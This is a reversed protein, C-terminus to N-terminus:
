KLGIGLWSRKTGTRHRKFGRETLHSALGKADLRPHGEADAFRNFRTRLATPSASENPGVRCEAAIFDGFYDMAERYEQNAKLVVPPLNLGHARWDRCGELIWNLIGSKEAKLKDPLRRDNKAPVTHFPITIIRRWMASDGARIEPRPNSVLFVKGIPKFEFWENFLYRASIMDGGTFQKIIPAALVSDSDSEIATVLRAGRLRAIDNPIASGRNALFTEFATTRAYDGFVFRLTEVLTSKGTGGPGECFFFVQEETSGTAAYGCARKIFAM